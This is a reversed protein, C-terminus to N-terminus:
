MKCNRFLYSTSERNCEINASLTAVITLSSVYYSSNAFILEARVPTSKIIRSEVREEPTDDFLLHFSLLTGVGNAPTIRWQVISDDNNNACVFM